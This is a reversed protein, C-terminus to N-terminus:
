PHGPVTAAPAAAMQDIVECLRQLTIGAERPDLLEEPIRLQCADEVSFVFEMLALSDLGLEALAAEPRVLAPELHFDTVLIRAIDDFTTSSMSATEKSLAFANQATM